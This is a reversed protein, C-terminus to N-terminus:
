VEPYLTEPRLQERAFREWDGLEYGAPLSVEAHFREELAELIDDEHQHSFVCLNYIVRPWKPRSAAHTGKLAAVM